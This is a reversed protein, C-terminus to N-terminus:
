PTAKAPSPSLDVGHGIRRFAEAQAASFFEAIEAVPWRDRELDSPHCHGRDGIGAVIARAMRAIVDKEFQTRHPDTM